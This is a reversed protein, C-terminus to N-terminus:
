ENSNIEDEEDGLGDELEEFTNEDVKTLQNYQINSIGLITGLFTDFATAITLVVDTYQFNFSKMVIGAFTILAPLFILTFWKLKDYMKNSM